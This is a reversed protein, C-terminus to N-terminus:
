LSASHFRAAGLKGTRKRNHQKLSHSHQCTREASKADIDFDEPSLKQHEQFPTRRGTPKEVNSRAQFSVSAKGSGAIAGQVHLSAVCCVSLHNHSDSRANQRHKRGVRSWHVDNHNHGSVVPSGYLLKGSRHSLVNHAHPIFIRKFTGPAVGKDTQYWSLVLATYIVLTGKAIESPQLPIGFFISGDRAAM